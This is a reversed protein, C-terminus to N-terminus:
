EVNIVKPRSEPKTNSAEDALSDEIIKKNLAFIKKLLQENQFMSQIKPNALLKGYEKNGIQEITEEDSFIKKLDDDEMFTKFEKTSRLRQLKAPDEFIATLNKVSGSAIPVKNGILQHIIGHSKSAIVDNQIKEFWGLQLPILGILIILLGLYSGSWLVSFISGLLKSPVSLLTDKDTFKGWIKLILSILIKLAFPSLACILLSTAINRTQHYYIFAISCGIVLSIPGLLTRLIGKHWGNLFFYFLAGLAIYDTIMPKLIGTNFNIYAFTQMKQSYTNYNFPFSLAEKFYAFLLM